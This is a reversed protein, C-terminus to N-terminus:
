QKKEEEPASDEPQEEKPTGDEPPNEDPKEALEEELIKGSLRVTKIVNTILMLVMPVLILPIFVYPKSVYVVLLGLIYSSFVVVGILDSTQVPYDRDEIINADGKTIFSRKGNEEQIRIVRHTNPAGNLAPNRSYFTIIDKVQVQEADVSKVLILTDQPLTPVMSGTMVRFVSYGFFSPAKGSPTMLVTLLLMVAVLIICISITNFIGRFIRKVTKM